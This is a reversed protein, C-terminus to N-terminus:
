LSTIEIAGQITSGGNRILFTSYPMCIRSKGLNFSQDLVLKAGSQFMKWSAQNFKSFVQGPLLLFLLLFTLIVSVDVFRCFIKICLM